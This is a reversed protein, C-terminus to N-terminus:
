RLGVVRSGDPIDKYVTTGAGIMVKDGVVTNNIVVSGAGLYSADGIRVTGCIVSGPAIHVGKGVICDHDVTAGTNIIVYRGIITSPNVVANAMIVSGPGIDVDRGIQASPHVASVLEYHHEELWQSLSCRIGNRGIAVIGRAPTNKKQLLEERGGIVPYNCFVNGKLHKDDDVIFSIEFFGQKELVDIVVKAHGSAGFVFIKEKCDSM